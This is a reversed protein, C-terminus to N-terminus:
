TQPDLFPGLTDLLDRPPRAVKGSLHIMCATVDAEVLVDESRLVRQYMLIRPGKIARYHTHITLMNDIQAPRIFRVAMETVAFALAPTRSLLDEHRIGALRLFDSRGREFFKLYNAHYVVGSFDTDEYYVRVPLVHIRGAMRGGVVGDAM